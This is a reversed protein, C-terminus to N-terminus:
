QSAKVMLGAEASQFIHEKDEIKLSFNTQSEAGSPATLELLRPNKPEATLAIKEGNASWRVESRKLSNLDFFFPEALISFSSGALGFFSLIAQPKLGTLANTEYFLIEPEYTKIRASKQTFVVGDLTNIKLTVLYSSGGVDALKLALKNRGGGSQSLVPKGDLSWEYILNQQSIRSGGRFLHPVAIVEVVSGPTPLAAGRYFQPVYTASHVVFDIDAISVSVGAEYPLGDASVARVTINMVSGLAGATFTQEVLGVGSAIEKGNLTWRFNTRPADFAFSKATVTVVQGARPSAPSVSLVLDNPSTLILASANLALFLATFIILNKYLKSM